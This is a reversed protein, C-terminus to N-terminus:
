LNQYIAHRFEYRLPRRRFNANRATSTATATILVPLLFTFMIFDARLSLIDNFYRKYPVKASKFTRPVALEAVVCLVALPLVAIQLFGLAIVNGVTKFPGALTQRNVEPVM